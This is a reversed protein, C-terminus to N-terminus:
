HTLHATNVANIFLTSLATSIDQDTTVEQYLGPSACSQLTSGINPQFPEVNATYFSNSPLPLYDLYLVAIRIPLGGSSVRKKIATCQTTDVLSIERTGNDMYDNVGDTVFFLVEQPSDGTANSGNGPTPMVSNIDSLADNIDTDGDSDNCGATSTGKNNYVLYGSNNYVELMSINSAENSATTMNSTLGAITNLPSGYVCGVTVSGGGGGGSSGGGGGSKVTIYDAGQGHYVLDGLGALGDFSVNTYGLDAYSGAGLIGGNSRKNREMRAYSSGSLVGGYSGKSGGLRGTISSSANTDFTYIAMQYIAKNSAATASATSALNEIATTLNDIRLTIGLSRALAYNDEGSPNGLNDASPDAEHCAFACGGENTGSTPSNATATMMSNIGATTAPIAMSPSSDALVYFNINPATGASAESGSSGNGIKIYKQGIIGSFATTSQASYSVAVEQQTPTNIAPPQTVNVTLNISSVGSVTSAQSCFMNVAANCAASTGTTSLSQSNATCTVQTSCTYQSLMSPTVAALAAADAAADLKTQRRAAMTYDVGMGAAFTIPILTLAFIIAVNARRDATFRLLLSATKSGSPKNKRASWRFPARFVQLMSRLTRPM